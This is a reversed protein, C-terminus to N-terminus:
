NHRYAAGTASIGLGDATCQSATYNHEEGDYSAWEEEPTDLWLDLWEELSSVKTYGPGAYRGLAWEVLTQEGVLCAFEASDNDALDQWYERAAEGASESSEALYWESRDDLVALLLPGGNFIDVIEHREGDIWIYNHPEYDSM